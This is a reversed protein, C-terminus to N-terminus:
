EELAKEIAKLAKDSAQKLAETSDEDEFMLVVFKSCGWPYEAEKVVALKQELWENCKKACAIASEENDYEEANHDKDSTDIHNGCQHWGCFYARGFPTQHAVVYKRNTM